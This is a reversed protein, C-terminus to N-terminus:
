IGRGQSNNGRSSQVNEQHKLLVYVSIAIPSLVLIVAFIFICINVNNTTKRRESQLRLQCRGEAALEEEAMTRIGDIIRRSSAAKAHNARDTELVRENRECRTRNENCLRSANLVRCTGDMEDHCYGKNTFTVSSDNVRNRDM